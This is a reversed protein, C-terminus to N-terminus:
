YFPLIDKLLVTKGEQPLPAPAVGTQEVLPIAAQPVPEKEGSVMRGVAKCLLISLFLVIITKKILKKNKDQSNRTRRKPRYGTFGRKAKYKRGMRKGSFRKPSHLRIRPMRPLRIRVVKYFGM